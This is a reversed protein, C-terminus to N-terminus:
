RQPMTLVGRFRVQNTIMRQYAVAARAPPFREVRPRVGARARFTLADRPIACDWVVVSNQRYGIGTPM